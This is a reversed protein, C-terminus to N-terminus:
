REKWHFFKIEGPSINFNINLLLLSYLNELWINTTFVWSLLLILLKILKQHLLFIQGCIYTIYIQMTLFWDRQNVLSSYIWKNWKIWQKVSSVGLSLVNLILALKTISPQLQFKLCNLGWCYCTLLVVSLRKRGLYYLSVAKEQLGSGQGWQTGVRETMDRQPGHSHGQWAGMGM